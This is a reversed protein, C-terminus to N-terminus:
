KTVEAISNLKEWADSARKASWEAQWKLREDNRYSFAWSEASKQCIMAYERLTYKTSYM